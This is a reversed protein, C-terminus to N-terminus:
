IPISFSFTSGKNLKGEASVRGGHKTVIRKVIALGVGTGEFEETSHLRQFVGFLKNAYLMNFGVGNDQIFFVFQRDEEKFRISIEPKEKKSSYKIANSLLNFVVQHLLGYDGKVIPMDDHSINAKHNFSKACELMVGELLDNMDVDHKKVNQRGLRSFALLNDILIGMKEANYRVSDLLRMSEEGLKTAFDEQLLRAYGNIARLPARLDHSVSYSFAELEKNLENVADRQKKMDSIDASIGLLFQPSGDEGLLPIKKTHLWREGKRKTLIPEEPIDLMERSDLVDRDKQIFFDAQEKPFFDYDNKGELDKKSFGLLQEGAKNFQVFRLDKADKVFIMDPINELVAALFLNSKRLEAEIQKEWKFLMDFALTQVEMHIGELQDLINMATMVDKTYAPIFKRFAARRVAFIMVLDAPTIDEKPIGEVPGEEFRRLGAKQKEVYTGDVLSDTMEAISQMSQPLLEEVPIHKYRRILPFDVERSIRISERAAEELHNNKLHILFTHLESM